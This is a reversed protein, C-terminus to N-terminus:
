FNGYSFRPTAQSNYTLLQTKSETKILQIILRRICTHDASNLSYGSECASDCKGVGQVSCGSTCHADCESVTCLHFCLIVICSYLKMTYCLKVVNSDVFVHM